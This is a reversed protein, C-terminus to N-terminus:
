MGPDASPSPMDVAVPRAIADLRERSRAGEDRPIRVPPDSHRSDLNRGLRQVGTSAHDHRRAAQDCEIQISDAIEFKGEMKATEGIVTLLTTPAAPQTSTPPTAAPKQPDKRGLM